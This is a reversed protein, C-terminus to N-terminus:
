AKKKKLPVTNIVERFNFPKTKFVYHNPHDGSTSISQGDKSLM